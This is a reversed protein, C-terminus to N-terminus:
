DKWKDKGLDAIQVVKHTIDDVAVYHNNDCYYKTVPNGTFKNVSIDTKIPNNITEVISENTWGREAVQNEYGHKSFKESFTLNETTYVYSNDNASNFSVETVPTHGYYKCYDLYVGYASMGCTYALMGWSLGSTITAGWNIQGEYKYSVAATHGAALAGVVISGILIITTVALKGSPDAYVIPNGICYVYLNGSQGIAAMNPVLIGNMKTPSDGYIM